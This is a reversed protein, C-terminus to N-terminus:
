RSYAIDFRVYPENSVKTVRNLDRSDFGSDFNRAFAYGAAVEFKLGVARFRVGGEVRQERFFLRQDGPIQRTHFSDIRQDYGAFLGAHQGLDYNARASFSDPIFWNIVINVKPTPDWLLSNVPFGVVYAIKDNYRSSFAVAPLPVDPAYSRNGNYDLIFLLNTGKKFQYGYMLSGKGYTARGETFAEDGAYGIAGSAALFGKEGIKALPSGFGISLDTLQHPLRAATPDANHRQQLNLYTLGYGFSPNLEYGLDFRYRGSSEVEFLKLSGSRESLSASPFAFMTARAETTQGLEWPNLLLSEDTQAQARLTCLSLALLLLGNRFTRM